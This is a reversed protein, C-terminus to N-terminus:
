TRQSEPQPPRHRGSADQTAIKAERVVEEVPHVRAMGQMQALQRQREAIALREADEGYRYVSFAKQLINGPGVWTKALWQRPRGDPWVICTVGPIGTKNNRRVKQAREKRAVPPHAAVIEDRWAQALALAVDRGGLKAFSFTRNFRQRNREIKVRWHTQHEVVGYMPASRLGNSLRDAQQSHVLHTDYHAVMLLLQRERAMIALERAAQSERTFRHVRGPRADPIQAGVDFYERLVAGNGLPTEAWWREPRGNVDRQLRIGGPKGGCLALEIIRWRTIERHTAMVDDRWQQAIALATQVSREPRDQNGGESSKFAKRHSIGNRTIEVVWGARANRVICQMAVPNPQGKPM